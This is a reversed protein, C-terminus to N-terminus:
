GDGYSGADRRFDDTASARSRSVVVLVLHGPGLSRLHSFSLGATPFMAGRGFRRCTGARCVLELEGREVVVIADPLRGPKLGLALGPAVRLVRKSFGDPLSARFLAEGASEDATL